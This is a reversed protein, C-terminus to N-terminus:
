RNRNLALMFKHPTVIKTRGIKKLSLLHRRDNTVLYDADGAIALELFKRDTIDRVIIPLVIGSPEIKESMSNILACIEPVIIAKEELKSKFRASSLADLLEQQVSTSSLFQFRASLISQLVDYCAGDNFPTTIGSVLINTDIPARLM